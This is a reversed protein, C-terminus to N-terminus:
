ADQPKANKPNLCQELGDLASRAAALEESTPAIGGWRVRYFLQVVGGLTEDPLHFQGVAQRALELYTWDPRRALGGSALLKVLRQMLQGCAGGPGLLSAKPDWRRRLCRRALIAALAVGCAAGAILLLALGKEVVGGLILNRVWAVFSSAARGFIRGIQRFFQHVWQGLEARAQQDYNIVSQRWAMQAQVWKEAVRQWFGTPVPEPRGGPTADVIQWDTSPTFVECWAHADQDRVIYVGDAGAADDILYGTALRARVGVANCLVTLASAFYVCHGQKMHFLFDEVGDRNPDSTRLDLSYAYQSRLVGALRQAIMQDLTDSPGKDRRENLLEACWQRAIQRVPPAVDIDGDDVVPGAQAGRLAALRRCLAEDLPQPASCVRYRVPQGPRMRAAMLVEGEATIAIPAVPTTLQAWLPPYSAYLTVLPRSLMEVDQVILGSPEPPPELQPPQLWPGGPRGKQDWKSRHYVNFTRGRLYRDTGMDLKAAGSTSFRVRLAVRDSLYVSKTRGLQVTGSENSVASSETIEPAPLSDHRSRPVILFVVVAGLATAALVIAMRRRLAKGPWDRRVNWVVQLPALPGPETALHAAAAADLGRKLTFIMATNCCLVLYVALVIAFWLDECFIATAVMLLMNLAMLQVYDRNGSREFLKCVQILVLYHGLAFMFDLSQRSYRSVWWELGVIATAALVALNVYLRPIYFEVGRGVTYFKVAVALLGAMAYFYNGEAVSFTVMGVAVMVLLPLELRKRESILVEAATFSRLTM